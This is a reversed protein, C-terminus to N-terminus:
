IHRSANIDSPNRNRFCSRENSWMALTSTDPAIEYENADNSLDASHQPQIHTRRVRDAANSDDEIIYGRQSLLFKNMQKEVKDNRRNQQTWWKWIHQTKSQSLRCHTIYMCWLMCPARMLRVSTRIFYFDVVVCVIFFFSFVVTAYSSICPFLPIIYRACCCALEVPINIITTPLIPRKKSRGCTNRYPLHSAIRLWLPDTSETCDVPVSFFFCAVLAFFIMYSYAMSFFIFWIVLYLLFRILVLSSINFVLCIPIFFNQLVTSPYLSIHACHNRM